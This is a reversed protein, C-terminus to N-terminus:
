LWILSLVPVIVTGFFVTLDPYNLTHGSASTTTSVATSSAVSAGAAPASAASGAAATTSLTTPTPTPISTRPSTYGPTAPSSSSAYCSHDSGCAYGPNCCVASVPSAVHTGGHATILLVVLHGVMRFAFVVRSQLSREWLASQWEPHVLNSFLKDLLLSGTGCSDAAAVLAQFNTRPVMLQDLRQTQIAATPFVYLHFAPTPLAKRVAIAFAQPVLVDEM